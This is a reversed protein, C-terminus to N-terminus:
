RCPGSGICRCDGGRLHLVASGVAGSCAGARLLHYEHLHRCGVTQRHQSRRQSRPKPGQRPDGPTVGKAVSVTYDVGRFIGRAVLDCHDIGATVFPGLLVFSIRISFTGAPGRPVEEAFCTVSPKLTSALWMPPVTGGHCHFAALPLLSVIRSKATPMLCLPRPRATL